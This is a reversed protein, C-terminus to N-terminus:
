KIRLNVCNAKEEQPDYHYSLSDVVGNLVSLSLENETERPDFREGGYTLTLDTREELSAYEVTVRIQPKPMQPLLIQQVLEEIALRIRYKEKAALNNQQCYREIEAGAGVFDFDRSDIDLELIKLKKIFRRTLEKEPHDFIQEPSGDEYIGGEDMYFVRNSISR